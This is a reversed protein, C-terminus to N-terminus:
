VGERELETAEAELRRVERVVALREQGEEGQDRLVALQKTQAEQRQRLGDARLARQRAERGHQDAAQFRALVQELEKPIRVGDVRQRLWETLENTGVNSLAVHTYEQRRLSLTAERVGGPPVPLAVRFASALEEVTADTPVDLRDHAQRPLEVYLTEPRDHDNEIHLAHEIVRERSELVFAGSARIGLMRLAHKQQGTCRMSLDKAFSVRVEGGRARFPVMAEGAYGNEDYIVAAGEELVVGTDNQFHLV